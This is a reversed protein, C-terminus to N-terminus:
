VSGRGWGQIDDLTKIQDPTVSFTENNADRSRVIYNAVKAFMRKPHSPTNFQVHDKDTAFEQRLVYAMQGEHEGDTVQVRQGELLVPLVGGVPKSKIKTVSGM